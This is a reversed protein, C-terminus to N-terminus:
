RTGGTTMNCFVHIPADGIGHGDPDIWYMGSEKSPDNTRIEDCNKRYTAGLKLILQEQQILKKELNEVAEGLRPNYLGESNPAVKSVEESIKQELKDKLMNVAERIKDDMNNELHEIASVLKMKGVEKKNPVFKVSEQSIREEQKAELKAVTEQLKEELNNELREVALAVKSDSIESTEAVAKNVEDLIRKETKSELFSVAATLKDDANYELREIAEAM